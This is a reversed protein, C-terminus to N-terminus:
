HVNSITGPPLAVNVFTHEISADTPWAITNNDQEVLAPKNEIIWKSEGSKTNVLKVPTVVLPSPTRFSPPTQPPPPLPPLLDATSFDDELEQIGLPLFYIKPTNLTAM